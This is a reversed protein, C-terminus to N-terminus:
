AVSPRRRWCGSVPEGATAGAPDAAGLATGGAGAGSQQRNGDLGGEASRDRWCEDHDNWNRDDQCEHLFSLGAHGVQGSVRDVVTFAGNRNPALM